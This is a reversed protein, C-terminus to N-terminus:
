PTRRNNVDLTVSVTPEPAPHADNIELVHWSLFSRQERTQSRALLRGRFIEWPINESKGAIWSLRLESAAFFYGSQMADDILQGVALLDDVDGQITDTRDRFRLM